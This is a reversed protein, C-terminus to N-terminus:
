WLNTSSRTITTTRAREKRKEQSKTKGKAKPKGDDESESDDDASRLVRCNKDKMNKLFLSPVDIPYKGWLANTRIQEVEDKFVQFWQVELPRSPETIQHLLKQIESDLAYFTVTILRQPNASSSLRIRNM